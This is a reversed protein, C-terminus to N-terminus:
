TINTFAGGNLVVLGAFDRRLISLEAIKQRPCINEMGYRGLGESRQNASAFYRM